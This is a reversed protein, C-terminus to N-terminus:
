NSLRIDIDDNYDVLTAWSNEDYHKITPNDETLALKFRMLSNLHSDACHHIVQKITWSNPRYTYELEEKSLNSVLKELKSPFTELDMIWKLIHMDTITEPQQFKGIPFKLKEINMSTHKKLLIRSEAQISM